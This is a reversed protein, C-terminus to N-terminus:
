KQLNTIRSELSAQWTRRTAAFNRRLRFNQRLRARRSALVTAEPSPEDRRLQWVYVSALLALPASRM